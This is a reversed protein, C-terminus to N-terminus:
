SDPEAAPFVPEAHPMCELLSAARRCPRLRWAGDGPKSLRGRRAGLPCAQRSSPRRGAPADLRLPRSRLASGRRWAVLGLWRRSAARRGARQSASASHAQPSGCAARGPWGPRRSAPVGPRGSALSAWRRRRASVPASVAASRESATALLTPRHARCTTPGISIRPGIIRSGNCCKGTAARRSRRALKCTSSRTEAARLM